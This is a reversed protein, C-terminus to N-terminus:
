SSAFVILDSKKFFITPSFTTIAAFECLLDAVKDCNSFDVTWKGFRLDKVKVSSIM